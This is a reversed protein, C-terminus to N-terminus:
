QDVAVAKLSQGKSLSSPCHSRFSGKSLSSPCHSSFTCSCSKAKQDTCAQFQQLQFLKLFEFFNGRKERRSLDKAERELELMKKWSWKAAAQGWSRKALHQHRVKKRPRSRKVLHMGKRKKM